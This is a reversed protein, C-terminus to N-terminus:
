STVPKFNAFIATDPTPKSEELKLDFLALESRIM